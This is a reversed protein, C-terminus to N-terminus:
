PGSSCRTRLVNSLEGEQPFPEAQKNLVLTAGMQFLPPADFGTIPCVCLHWEEQKHGSSVTVVGVVPM